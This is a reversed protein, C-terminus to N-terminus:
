PFSFDNRNDSLSFAGLSECTGRDSLVDKFLESKSRGSLRQFRLQNMSGSHNSFTLLPMTSHSHDKFIDMADLMPLM